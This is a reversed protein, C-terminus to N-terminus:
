KTENKRKEKIKMYELVSILGSIGGFAIFGFGLSINLIDNSSIGIMIGGSIITSLTLFIFFALIMIQCYRDEQYDKM